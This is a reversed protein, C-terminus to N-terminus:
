PQAWFEILAWQDRIVSIPEFLTIGPLAHLVSGQYYVGCHHIGIRTNKGLLVICYDAPDAVCKFGNANHHVALRFADAMARVTREKPEYGVHLAKRECAYLDAVLDWCPQASYQRAQYTSIDM